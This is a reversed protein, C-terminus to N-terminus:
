WPLLGNLHDTDLFAKISSGNMSCCFLPSEAGGGDLAVDIYQLWPLQLIPIGLCPAMSYISKTVKTVLFPPTPTCMAFNQNSIASSSCPTSNSLYSQGNVPLVNEWDSLESVCVVASYSLTRTHVSAYLIHVTM